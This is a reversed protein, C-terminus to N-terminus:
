GALLFNAMGDSEKSKANSGLSHSIHGDSTAADMPQNVRDVM